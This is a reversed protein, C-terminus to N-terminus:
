KIREVWRGVLGRKMPWVIFAAGARVSGPGSGPLVSGLFALGDDALGLEIPASWEKDSFLRYFVPIESDRLWTGGRAKGLVLAHFTEGGGATVARLDPRPSAPAGSRLNTWTDGEILWDTGFVGITGNPDVALATVFPLFLVAQMPPLHRGQIALFKRKGTRTQATGPVAAGGRQLTDAPIRALHYDSLSHATRWLKYLVDVNGHGDAAYAIAETDLTGQPELVAWPGFGAPSESVFVARRGKTFWPWIVAAAHGGFGYFDMRTPAGFEKGEVMFTWTLNPAGPVFRVNRAAVGADQWPTRESAHWAGEEYVMQEGDILVHLRGRADFAGDISHASVGSRVVRRGVVGEPGVVVELVHAPKRSAILVHARGASDGVIRVKDFGTEGV